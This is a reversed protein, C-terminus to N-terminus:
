CINKKTTVTLKLWTKQERGIQSQVDQSTKREQESTLSRFGRMKSQTTIKLRPQVTSKM